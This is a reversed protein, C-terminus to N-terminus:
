VYRDQNANGAIKDSPHTVLHSLLVRELDHTGHNRLTNKFKIFEAVGGRPSTALM